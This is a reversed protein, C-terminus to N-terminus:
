DPCPEHKVVERKFWERTERAREREGSDRISELPRRSELGALHLLVKQKAPEIAGGPNKRCWLEWAGEVTILGEDVVHKIDTFDRPAGRDVLASMKSAINDTFTEILVPPWASEVPEELGVSRVSIQFTFEKRGGKVLEFSVTEGFKRERMSYGDEDAVRQMAERIVQETIPIARTKWWADIDHTRRYDAYHQLAFYGGLVIEAAELKGALLSLVKEARADITVPKNMAAHRLSEAPGEKEPQVGM